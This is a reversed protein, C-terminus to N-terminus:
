DGAARIFNEAGAQARVAGAVERVGARLLAKVTDPDASRDTVLTDVRGCPCIQARSGIGLKSGDALMMVGHSHRIMAAAVEAEAIEFDMAGQQPHLGVPSLVAVDLQFRAIEALTRAGLTAPVERALEGGLLHAGGAASGRLAMAVDISNTVVTVDPVQALQEAFLATTTGADIFCSQGPRFLAAATRAIEQKQPRNRTLRATFPEEAAAAPLMAGGHVRMLEGAAELELLDRRVTERSVSLERAIEETTVRTRAHLLNRIRQHRDQAWM